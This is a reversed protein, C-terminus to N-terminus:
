VLHKVHLTKNQRPLSWLFCSREHGVKVSQSVSARLSLTMQQFIHLWSTVVPHANSILGCFYICYMVGSSAPCLMWSQNVKRLHIDGSSLPVWFEEKRGPNHSDRHARHRCLRLVLCQDVSCEEHSGTRDLCNGLEKIFHFSAKTRSNIQSIEAGAVSHYAPFLCLSLISKLVWCMRVCVCRGWVSFTILCTEM